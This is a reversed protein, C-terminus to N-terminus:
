IAGHRPPKIGNLYYNGIAAYKWRAPDHLTHVRVNRWHRDLNHAALTSRTGALEHLKNAATLAAETGFAKAEAVAVSAEAVTEETPTEAAADVYRGARALLAEAANQRITLDGIQAITYPDEAATEKGSDIWPRSRHQVFDITEALAARGIGIDVAAHIIQALPGMSTPHDFANQYPIVGLPDVIANEFITTGSGTTRQGFGSWDDILTVGATDPKLFAFVLRDNRDKAVAAVWHAFLAGTSYFKRGNLRLLDQADPKLFTAYDHATKTGAESLANGFREGQLVREFWHRKQVETATLRIAEIVFFHNQPIQGISGDAAAIIATVTALTAASVGAGGYAKPVTIALLGSESYRDMEAHPLRRDRDREAAGPAFAAALRHAVAIAEAGDRIRATQGRLDFAASM